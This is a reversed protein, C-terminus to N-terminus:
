NNENLRLTNIKEDTLMGISKLDAGQMTYEKLKRMNGEGINPILRIVPFKAKSDPKQSKVKEVQLDFPVGVVTGAHEQVSDFAGVISPISSAEGKTTLAWLGFVGKIEPLIFRLTLVVSWGNQSGSKILAQVLLDPYDSLSLNVYEGKQSNYIKFNEGDGEGFLAGARDRLEYRMNCVQSIDDSMFVATISNPKAGYAQRFLSEYKGDAKFYDLSTPYGNAGKMGVKIKGIVPFGGNISPAENAIPKVIRGRM